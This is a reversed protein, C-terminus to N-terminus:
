QVIFKGHGAAEAGDDTKIRVTYLYIGSSLPIPMNSGGNQWELEITDFSSNAQVAHHLDLMKAGATNLITIQVDMAQGSRNHNFRFTGYTSMPNPIVQIQEIKASPNSVVRFRTEATASRNCVNFARCQLTYWGDAVTPFPYRIIGKRPNDIASQYFGNLVITQKPDNNLIATIERGIGIGTTNIGLKDEVEAYLTPRPSTISGDKWDTSDIYLTLSPDHSCDPANPDTCCVVFDHFSGNADRKEDEAYFSFKGMGVEYSIDLPMNFELSFQGNKVSAAGRFIVNRQWQYPINAQLTVMRQPKDFVTLYVKGNFDSLLSGAPSHVEGAIQVQGLAKLTDVKGTAVPQKNMQTLVVRNKPFNLMLGPDGLLSFARTNIPEDRWILNKARRYSEGIAMRNADDSCNLLFLHLNNNFAQNGSSYVMRVATIVGIGGGLPNTVLREAGCDRNHDDWRGFECTATIWLPARNGNRLGDIDPIEFVYSSSLGTEGGHGTYSVILQGQHLKDMLAQHALPFRVGEALRQAPYSDLYVKDVNLEPACRRYYNIDLDDAERIHNDEFTSGNQKIDGILLARNRWDDFGDPNTAYDIIKRIMARADQPTKVPLRGIAFDMTHSEQQTDEEYYNVREGWFGENDEMFTLFDDSTFAETPSTSQRAQYTPILSPRDANIGKNDYSGDGLLLVHELKPGSGNMGRDYFMKIADRIATLDAVGSGFENYITETTLIHVQRPQGASNTYQQRHFAALEEAEAILTKDTILLYDVPPLGHLDQNAIKAANEPRLYAQDNFAVLPIFSAAATTIANGTLAHAKVDTPNSVDWVAYGSSITGLSLRVPSDDNSTNVHYFPIFPQSPSLQATYDLEIFDVWAQPNGARDITLAVELRGNQVQQADVTFTRSAMQAFSCYYCDTFSSSHTMTGVPTNNATVNLNVGGSGRGFTRIRLAIRSNPQADPVDFTYRLTNEQDFNDGVFVRGMRILSTKEDNRYVFRRVTNVSNTVNPDFAVQPIRKGIGQNITLFYATKTSYLHPNSRFTNNRRQFSIQDAAQGYFLIYDQSDFRGDGGDVVTIANEILDDARPDANRQSLMGGGKGFLQIENPRIANLDIGLGSLYAGDLRYIGDKNVEIKYWDGKALLSNDRYVRSQAHSDHPSVGIILISICSFALLFSHRIHNM